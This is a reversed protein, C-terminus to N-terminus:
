FKVAPWLLTGKVTVTVLVCFAPTAGDSSRPHGKAKAATRAPNSIPAVRLGLCANGMARATSSTPPISEQPPPPPPPVGVGVGVGLGLVLAVRLTVPVLPVTLRLM